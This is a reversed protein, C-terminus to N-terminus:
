VGLYFRPHLTGSVRVWGADEHGVPSFKVAARVFDSQTTHTESAYEDRSGDIGCTESVCTSWGTNQIAQDNTHVEISFQEPTSRTCIIYFDTGAWVVFYPQQGAFTPVTIHCIAPLLQKWQALPYLPDLSPSGQDETLPQPSTCAGTDHLSLAAQVVHFHLLM